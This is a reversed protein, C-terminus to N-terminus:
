AGTGPYKLLAERIRYLADTVRKNDRYVGLVIRLHGEGGPGYNIGDNVSVRAERLLYAAIDTSSGLEHVDVWCLFGSEPLQMSVGPISNLIQYATKRRYDFATRFEEMFSTDKLAALVAIQSVTHAAGLVSVANAYMSDMIVDSCVLYGVRYGSLGMGKSFSFVTITREFMGPLSAPTILEREFCFDEFAQDCVLILDHHIALDTLIEMSAKDYITTTPNNPQTLVLMKTRPTVAKELDSRDLQFGNEERLRVPVATAGM